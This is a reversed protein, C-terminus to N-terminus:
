VEKYWIITMKKDESELIMVSSGESKVSTIIANPEDQLLSIPKSAVKNEVKVINDSLIRNQSYFEVYFITSCVIITFCAIQFGINRVSFNFGNNFGSFISYIKKLLSNKFLGKLKLLNHNKKDLIDRNEISKLISASVVSNDVESIALNIRSEFVQEIYEYYREKKNSYQKNNDKYKDIRM